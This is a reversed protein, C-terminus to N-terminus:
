FSKSVNLFVRRGAYDYGSYLPANGVRNLGAQASVVPPKVDALNRIGFTARWKSATNNYSISAAQLFYKPTDLKFSTTAEDIRNFDYSQTPGVWELGYYVNWAKVTYNLDM